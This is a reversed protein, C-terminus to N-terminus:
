NGVELMALDTLDAYKSSKRPRDRRRNAGAHGAHRHSRNCAQSHSAWMGAGSWTCNWGMSEGQNWRPTWMHARPQRVPRHRQRPRATTRIQRAACGNMSGWLSTTMKEDVLGTAAGLHSPEVATGRAAPPQQGFRREAIPLGGGKDGLQSTAREARRHHEVPQHGAWGKEGISTFGTEVPCRRYGSPRPVLRPM